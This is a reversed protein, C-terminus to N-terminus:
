QSTQALFRGNELKELMRGVLRERGFFYSSHSAQFADLGVYPCLDSDLEPAQERDYDALTAEPAPRHAHYLENSWFDLLSQAEDREEDADLLVGTAQGQCVFDTVAQLFAETPTSGPDRRQALLQLHAERLESLNPFRSSQNM